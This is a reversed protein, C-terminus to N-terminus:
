NMAKVNWTKIVVDFPHTKLTFLIYAYIQMTFDLHMTLRTKLKNKVFSLIFFCRKDKVNGLVMGMSLGILKFWKSLQHTILHNNSLM